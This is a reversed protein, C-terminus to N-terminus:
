TTRHQYLAGDTFGLRRYYERTGVSSIVALRSFGGARAERSALDILTRGLGAHQAKGDERAGIGVASGYVHVERLLAAGSLEELFACEQVEPLCLRAFGALRGDATVFQLFAEDGVSTRYRLVESRLAGLRVAEGRIERARIDQGRMGRRGIEKEAVARFNTVRSGTLIDEGPIDRIVRSLRCYPPCRTMCAILIELLENESYPRYRGAEYHAMLTASEVLSCPYLKLEDPRFDPDAFLLEFDSVDRDPSSGYLNAMWHGQIKFGARRLLRTARRSQSVDHGRANLALVEDDLSQYGIQIKTAGLRRLRVVDSETVHDPRTELSLGVARSGATENRTQADALEKWSAAELARLSGDEDENRSFETVSRNYDTASASRGDIRERNTDYDIPDMPARGGENENGGRKSGLGFDNLAQFVRTLFWLQYPEPYFSWTGGLVILEIKDVPHGIWYLASLRSRTQEYPDFRHMGARQAGPENALYSKPMRVDNPCFICTGPCPFPKTLITVPTVGSLSRIPKMRVKELFARPESDLPYREALYRYGAVLESKSFLSTGNKPHRRLIRDLNEVRPLSDITRVIALLESEHEEPAFRYDQWRTRKM